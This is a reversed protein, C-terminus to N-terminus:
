LEPQLAMNSLLWQKFSDKLAAQRRQLHDQSAPMLVINLSAPSSPLLPAQVPEWPWLEGPGTVKLERRHLPSM